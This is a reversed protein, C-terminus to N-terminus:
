GEGASWAAFRREATAILAKYFRAGAKGQKEGAALLVAVRNRDFAFAVRWVGSDASFRLEKLNVVKSGKLTDVAPRGLTPGFQALLRAHALLEDQVAESFGAFEAALEAHLEVAWPM